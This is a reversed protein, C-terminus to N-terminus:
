QVTALEQDASQPIPPNKLMSRPVLSHPMSVVGAAPRGRSYLCAHGGKTLTYFRVGKTLTYFRVGKTLTYLRVGQILTYFRM